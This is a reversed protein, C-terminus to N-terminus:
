EVKMFKLADDKVFEALGELDNRAANVEAEDLAPQSSDVAVVRLAGGAAANLAFGGSYCFRCTRFLSHAVRLFFHHESVNLPTQKNPLSAHHITFARFCIPISTSWTCRLFHLDLYCNSYTSVDGLWADFYTTFPPSLSRFMLQCFAAHATAGERTMPLDSVAAPLPAPCLSSKCISCTKEPASNGCLREARESTATFAKESHRCCRRHVSFALWHVIRPLYWLVSLVRRIDVLCCMAIHSVTCFRRLFSARGRTSFISILFPRLVSGKNRCCCGQPGRLMGTKQGFQPRVLYDLGLERVVTTPADSRLRREEGKGGEGEGAEESGGGPNERGEVAAESHRVDDGAEAAAEAAAPKNNGTWGDQQLRGDSRRWIVETADAGFVEELAAEIEPRFAEVWVASSSVGIVGAFVDVVLGSLRDGEGNVLRKILPQISVAM